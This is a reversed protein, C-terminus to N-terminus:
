IPVSFRYDSYYVVILTTLQISSHPPERSFIKDHSYLTYTMIVQEDADKIIMICPGDYEKMLSYLTALSIGHQDLSYLMNWRQSIRYRRPLYPRLIEAINETLVVESDNKRNELIISPMEDFDSEITRKKHTPILSASVLADIAASNNVIVISSSISSNSSMISASSTTSSVVSCSDDDEEEDLENLYLNSNPLSGRDWDMVSSSLTCQINPTAIKITTSKKTVPNAAADNYAKQYSSIVSSKTISTTSQSKHWIRPRASPGALGINIL